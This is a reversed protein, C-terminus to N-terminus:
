RTCKPDKDEPDVIQSNHAFCWDVFNAPYKQRVPQPIDADKVEKFEFKITGNPAVTALLYGYVNEKADAPRPQPLAYRVAGATGIIWGEPPKATSQNQAGATTAGKVKAIDFIEPMYYHSHSALIYVPKRAHLAVLAKYVAEGTPRARPEDTNDGMSHKNALSDPLAEHMGVVVSKVSPSYRATQLHRFIWTLQTESFFGNANDLYIFDVGNQVWHYYTEPDPSERDFYRQAHLAPSDLWDFFQRKFADEHKPPIVEHNGIGVYFPLGGFPAIQNEVFDIWALREYIDCTLKPGTLAAAAAMDEDIKYIARLDGLHWYFAPDFQASHAAIAPMILDGCNRSDGSVIFRWSGEPLPEDNKSAKATAPTEAVGSLHAAVLVLALLATFFSLRLVAYRVPSGIRDM